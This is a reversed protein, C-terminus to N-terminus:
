RAPWSRLRGNALKLTDVHVWGSEPYLVIAGFRTLKGHMHMHMAIEHLEKTTIGPCMIDAARGEMHQSNTAVGSADGRRAKIRQNYSPSRYGSVIVIPMDVEDRIEQISEALPVLRGEIWEQPYPTGDKCDFESVRFNPTILIM